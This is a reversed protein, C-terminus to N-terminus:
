VGAFFIRAVGRSPCCTASQARDWSAEEPQRIDPQPLKKVWFRGEFDPKSSGRVLLAICGKIALYTLL